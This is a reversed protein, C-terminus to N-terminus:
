AVSHSTLYQKCRVGINPTSLLEQQELSLRLHEALRALPATLNFQRNSKTRPASFSIAVLKNPSSLPLWFKIKRWFKTKTGCKKKKKKDFHKKRAATASSFINRFCLADVYLHIHQLYVRSSCHLMSSSWDPRSSFVYVKMTDDWGTTHSISIWSTNPGDARRKVHGQATTSAACM